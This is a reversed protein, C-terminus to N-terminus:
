LLLIFLNQGLLLLVDLSHTIKKLVFYTNQHNQTFITNLVVNQNEGYINIPDLTGVGSICDIYNTGADLASISCQFGRYWISIYLPPRFTTAFLLIFGNQGLLLSRDLSNTITKLVFYINQPNQTFITNLVVNQNKGYINIPDRGWLHLRHLQTRPGPSM